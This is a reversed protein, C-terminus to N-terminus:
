FLETGLIFLCVVVMAQDWISTPSILPKQIAGSQMTRNGEYQGEERM